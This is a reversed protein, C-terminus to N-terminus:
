KNLAIRVIDATNKANLKRMVNVRHISVTKHSIKLADAIMKNSFGMIIKELVEMERKSLNAQPTIASSVHQIKHSIIQLIVKIDIDNFPKSIYGEPMLQKARNVTKDDTNGTIFVFPIKKVSLIEQMLDIGDYKNEQGLNIDALIINIDQKKILELAQLKDSATFVQTYNYSHLLKQLYAAIIAEDEIILINCPNSM